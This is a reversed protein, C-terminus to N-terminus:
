PAVPPRNENHYVLVVLVMAVVPVVLTLATGVIGALAGLTVVKPSVHGRAFIGYLVLAAACLLSVWLVVNTTEGSTAVAEAIGAVLYVGGVVGGLIRIWRTPREGAV